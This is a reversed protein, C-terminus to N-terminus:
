PYGFPASTVMYLYSGTEHTLTEREAALYARSLGLDSVVAEKAKNLLVNTLKLDRHM